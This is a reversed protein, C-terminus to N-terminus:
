KYTVTFNVAANATGAQPGELSNSVQVYRAKLNIMMDGDSTKRILKSVGLEFPTTGDQQLIQVAVGRSESDSTLGLVGNKADIISSGKAGELLLNVNSGQFYNWSQGTPYTGGNCNVLPIGFDHSALRGGNEGFSARTVSGMSVSINKAVAPVSCESRTVTGRLSYDIRHDGSNSTVKMLTNSDFRNVGMPIEGIKVLTIYVSFGGSWRAGNHTRIVYPVFPFNGDKIWGNGFNETEIIIGVGPISTKYIAGKSHTQGSPPTVGAVPNTTYSTEWTSNAECTIGPVSHHNLLRTVGIVSGVPADRPVYSTGVSIASTFYESTQFYCVGGYAAKSFGALLLATIILSGVISRM